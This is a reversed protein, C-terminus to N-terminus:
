QTLFGFSADNVSTLFSYITEVIQWSADKKAFTDVFTQKNGHNQCSAINLLM